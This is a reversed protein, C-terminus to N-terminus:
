VGGRGGRGGTKRAKAARRGFSDSRVAQLNYHANERARLERSAATLRALLEDYEVEAAALVRTTCVIAGDHVVHYQGDEEILSLGVKPKVRLTTM